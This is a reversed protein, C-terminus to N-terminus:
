WLSNLILNFIKIFNVVKLSVNKSERVCVKLDDYEPSVESEADKVADADTEILVTPDTDSEAMPFDDSGYNWDTEPTGQYTSILNQSQEKSTQDEGLEGIGVPDEYAEAAPMAFTVALFTLLLLKM